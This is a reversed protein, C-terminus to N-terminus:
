AVGNGVWVRHGRLAPLGMDCYLQVSLSTGLYLKPVLPIGNIGDFIRMGEKM